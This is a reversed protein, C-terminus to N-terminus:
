NTGNRRDCEKQAEEKTAFCNQEWFEISKDEEIAYRVLIGDKWLVVKVGSITVEEEFWLETSKAKDKKYETGTICNLVWIKDKPKFKTRIEM